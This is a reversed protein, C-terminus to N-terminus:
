LIYAQIRNIETFILLLIPNNLIFYFSTILCNKLLNFKSFKFLKKFGSNKICLTNNFTVNLITRFLVDNFNWGYIKTSPNLVFRPTHTHKKYVVTKQGILYTPQTIIQHIGAPKKHQKKSLAMIHGSISLHAM